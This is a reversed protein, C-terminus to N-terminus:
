KNNYEVEEDKYYEWHERNWENKLLDYKRDIYIYITRNANEDSLYFKYYVKQKFISEEEKEIDVKEVHSYYEKGNHEYRLIESPYDIYSKQEKYIVIFKVISISIVCFCLIATIIELIKSKKSEPKINMILIICSLIMVIFCLIKKILSLIIGLNNTIWLSKLIDEKLGIYFFLIAIVTFIVIKVNRKRKEM